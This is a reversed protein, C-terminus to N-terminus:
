GKQFRLVDDLDTECWVEFYESRPHIDLSSRPRTIYNTWFENNDFTPDYEKINIPPKYPPSTFLYEPIGAKNSM